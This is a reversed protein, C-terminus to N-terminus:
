WGEVFVFGAFGDKEVREVITKLYERLLDQDKSKCKIAVAQKHEDYSLNCGGNCCRVKKLREGERIADGSLMGGHHDAAYTVHLPGVVYPHPVGITDIVEFLETKPYDKIKENM